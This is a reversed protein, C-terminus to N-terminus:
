NNKWYLIRCIDCYFSNLSEIAFYIESSNNDIIDVEDVYSGNQNFGDIYSSKTNYQEDLRCGPCKLEERSIRTTLTYQRFCVAHIM